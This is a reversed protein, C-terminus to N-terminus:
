EREGGLLIGLAVDAPIDGEPKVTWGQLIEEETETWEPIAVFGEETEPAETYTVPKYGEAKLLAAPPNYVVTNGCLLMHPAKYLINNTLKAYSM